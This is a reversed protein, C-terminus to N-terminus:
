SPLAAKRSGDRIEGLVRQLAAEGGARPSLHPRVLTTAEPVSGVFRFPLARPALASLTVGVARVIAGRFGGGDAVVIQQSMQPALERYFKALLARVDDKPPPSTREIVAISCIPGGLQAIFARAITDLEVVATPTTAFQWVQILVNDWLAVCHDKDEVRVVWDAALSVPHWFLM